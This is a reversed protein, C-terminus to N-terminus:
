TSPVNETNLFVLVKPVIVALEKAALTSKETPVFGRLTAMPSRSPSPFGSKAPAFLPLAEIEMQRLLITVAAEVGVMVLKVGILPATPVETVIVPVLKEVIAAM